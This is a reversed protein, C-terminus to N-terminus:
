GVRPAGVSGAGPALDGSVVRSIRASADLRERISRAAATREPSSAKSLWLSVPTRPDLDRLPGAPHLLARVVHAATIAEQPRLGLRDRFLEARHVHEDTCPRGVVDLGAVVIVLDAARSVVPEHAAHAKLSRGASGDAEVLLRDIAGSALLQKLTEPDHGQLKGDPGISAAVTPPGPLPWRDAVLAVLRQPDPELLARPLPPAPPWIRTSTAVVVREGRASLESALRYILTTKGGGGVIWTSRAELVGLSRALSM